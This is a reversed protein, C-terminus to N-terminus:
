VFLGHRGPAAMCQNFASFPHRRYPDRTIM